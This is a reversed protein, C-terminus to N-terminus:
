DDRKSKHGDVTRVVEEVWRTQKEFRNRDQGIMVELGTQRLESFLVVADEYKDCPTWGDREVIGAVSDWFDQVENWGEADDLHSRLEDETFHIPCPINFGLEDWYREMRVLSERFPLIDDDWTNGCFSIVEGRTRGHETRFVRSLRPNEKATFNEYLYLIISSAVQEKIPIKEEEKLHKYNEPLKLMIEGNYNILKPHRAQIFLPGAWTGQWDIISTIRNKEIFINGSHLDKHWLNATLLDPDTPLLYPAVDLYKGLLSVHESPSNQAASPKLPDNSVTPIAYKKIWAIERLAIASIYDHPDKWPGRDIDLESREKSWFEREVMPGITFRTSVINQVDISVDGVIKAAISGEVNDSAYYINGFCSFSVSLLKKEISILEKMISVKDELEMTNWSDAAQRGVVEEMIIYEAGVPNSVSASWAYVEPVPIELITRAQNSTLLREFPNQFPMRVFDMTAVESATTYYSPGANPNPIRAVVVSGNDMILRFVKNFSGEALKTMSVCEKAGVSTAAVRQLEQVNFRRYRDLLQQEEDWVWRCSTYRFFDEYQSDRTTSM